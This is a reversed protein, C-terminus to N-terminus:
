EGSRHVCLARLGSHSEFQFPYRSGAFNLTWALGSGEQTTSWYSSGRSINIGGKIKRDGRVSLDYIGQLEDITPLRWHSQGALKLNTCYNQAQRWTVESASDHKAWILGAAQDTWVLEQIQALRRQEAAADQRRKDAEVAEQQKKESEVEALRKQEALRKSEADAEVLRKNQALAAEFQKRQAEAQELRKERTDKLKIEVAKQGTKGVAIVGRWEDLGDPTTAQILHEGFSSHVVKVESHGLGGQPKGDIRWVCDVDTSALVTPGSFFNVEGTAPNPAYQGSTLTGTDISAHDGSIKPQAAALRAASANDDKNDILPLSSAATTNSPSSNARHHLWLWGFACIALVVSLIAAVRRQHSTYPHVKLNAPSNASQSGSLEPVLKTPISASERHIASGAEIESDVPKFEIENATVTFTQRISGADPKETVLLLLSARLFEAQMNGPDLHLAENVAIRSMELEGAAKASEALSLLRQVREQDPGISQVGSGVSFVKEARMRLLGADVGDIQLPQELNGGITFRNGAVVPETEARSVQTVQVASELEQLRRVDAMLLQAEAHEPDIDLLSAIAEQATSLNARAVCARAHGLYTDAMIQRFLDRAQVLALAMEEASFFRDEPRKALARAIIDDLERPYNQLFASLPAPEKELIRAMIEPPETGGFPLVGALMQYLMVGTSFVDTRYDVNAPDLLQEPPMFNLAGVSQLSADRSHLAVARAVGWDAVKASGDPQIMVKSPKIRGHVVGSVHAFHLVNCVQIVTDLMQIPTFDPQAAIIRELSKGAILEMGLYPIGHDIDLEFVLAVGPHRLNVV